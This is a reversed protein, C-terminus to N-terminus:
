SLVVQLHSLASLAFLNSSGSTNLAVFTSLTFFCTINAARTGRLRRQAMNQLIVHLIKSRYSILVTTKEM